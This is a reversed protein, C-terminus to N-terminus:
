FTIDASNNIGIQMWVEYNTASTDTQLNNRLNGEGRRRRKFETESASHIFDDHRRKSSLLHFNPPPFHNMKHALGCVTDTRDPSLVLWCCGSMLIGKSSVTTTRTKGSRTMSSVTAKLWCLPWASCFVAAATSPTPGIATELSKAADSRSSRSKRSWYSNETEYKKWDKGRFHFANLNKLLRLFSFSFTKSKQVLTYPDLHYKVIGVYYVLLPRREKDHKGTM